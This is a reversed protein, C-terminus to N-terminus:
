RLADCYSSRLRPGRIMRHWEHSGDPGTLLVENAGCWRIELTM